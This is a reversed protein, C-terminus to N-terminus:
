ALKIKQALSFLPNIIIQKLTKQYKVGLLAVFYGIIAGALIDTPWHVVVMIRAVCILIAMVLTPYGIKKRNLFLLVFTITFLFVAHDSPFSYTPRHFILEKAGLMSNFPRPRQWFLAIIRSIIQWGFLGLCFVFLLEKRTESKDLTKDFYKPWFWFVLLVVPIVYILYQAFFVTIKTIVPNIQAFSNLSELLSNDFNEIANMNKHYRLFNIFAFNSM